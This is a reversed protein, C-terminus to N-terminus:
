KDGGGHIPCLHDSMGDYSCCCRKQRKPPEAARRKARIAATVEEPMMALVADSQRDMWTVLTDGDEFCPVYALKSSYRLGCRSCPRGGESGMPGFIPGPGTDHPLQQGM